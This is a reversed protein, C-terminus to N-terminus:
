QQAPEEGDSWQTAIVASAYSAMKDALLMKCFERLDEVKEPLIDKEFDDLVEIAFSGNVDFPSFREPDFREGPRLGLWERTERYRSDLPNNLVECFDAYGITGGVGEPPAMRAGGICVPMFPFAAASDPLLREIEVDVEWYDEMDYFFEVADGPKLLENILKDDANVHVEGKMRPMKSGSEALLPDDLFMGGKHFYFGYEGSWDFAGLIADGLMFFTDDAPILFRRWIVPETYLLTAKVQYVGATNVGEAPAGQVPFQFVNDAM